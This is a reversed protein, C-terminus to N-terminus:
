CSGRATKKEAHTYYSCHSITVGIFDPLESWSLRADLSSISISLDIAWSTGSGVNFYTNEGTNLFVLANNLLLGVTRIGASKTRLCDWTPSHANFDGILFLPPLLQEDLDQLDTRCECDSVLRWQGDYETATTFQYSQRKYVDLHTYSVSQTRQM